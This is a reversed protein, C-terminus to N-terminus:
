YLKLREDMRISVINFGVQEEERVGGALDDSREKLTVTPGLV